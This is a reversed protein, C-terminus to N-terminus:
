RYPTSSQKKNSGCSVDLFQYLHWVKLVSDDSSSVLYQSDVTILLKTIRQYHLFGVFLLEGTFVNWVYLSGKKSGGFLFFGSPDSTVATIIEQVACQYTAHNFGNKNSEYLHVLPKNSQSVVLYDGALTRSGSEGGKFGSSSLSSNSVSCICNKDVICSSSSTHSSKFATASESSSGVANNGYVDLLTMGGGTGASGDSSSTVLLAYDQFCDHLPNFNRNMERFTERWVIFSSSSRHTFYFLFLSGFLTLSFFFFSLQYQCISMSTSSSNLTSPLSQSEEGTKM